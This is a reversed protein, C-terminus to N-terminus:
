TEALNQPYTFIEKSDPDKSGYDQFASGSGPSWNIESGSGVQVNKHGNIFTHHGVPVTTRYIMFM